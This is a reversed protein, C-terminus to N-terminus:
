DCPAHYSVGEAILTRLKDVHVIDSMVKMRQELTFVDSQMYGYTADLQRYLASLGAYIVILDDKNFEM